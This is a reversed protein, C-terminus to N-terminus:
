MAPGFFCRLKQVCVKGGVLVGMNPEGPFVHAKSGPISRLFSVGMFWQRMSKPTLCCLLTGFLENEAMSLNLNHVTTQGERTSESVSLSGTMRPLPQRSQSPAVSELLAHLPGPPSEASSTQNM